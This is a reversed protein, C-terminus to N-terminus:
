SIEKPGRQDWYARANFCYREQWELAVPQEKDRRMLQELAEDDGNQLAELAKWLQEKPSKVPDRRRKILEAHLHTRPPRSVVRPRYAALCARLEEAEM